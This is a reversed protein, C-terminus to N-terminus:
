PVRGASVLRPAAGRRSRSVASRGVTDPTSLLHHITDPRPKRVSQACDRDAPRTRAARQGVGQCGSPPGAPRPTGTEQPALTKVAVLLSWRVRARRQRHEDTPWQRFPPRGAKAQRSRPRPSRCAIPGSENLVTATPFGPWFSTRSNTAPIVAARSRGSPSIVLVQSEFRVM